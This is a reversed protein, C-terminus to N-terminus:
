PNLELQYYMELKKDWQLMKLKKQRRLVIAACIAIVAPNGMAVMFDNETFAALRERIKPTLRAIMRSDDAEELVMELQGFQMAPTINFQPVRRQSAHDFRMPLQPIYVISM